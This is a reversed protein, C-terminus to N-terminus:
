EAAGDTLEQEILAAQKELEAIELRVIRSRPTGYTAGGDAFLERASLFPKENPTFYGPTLWAGLPQSSLISSTFAIGELKSLEGLLRSTKRELESLEAKNAAAQRRLELAEARRRALIALARRRSLAELAANIGDVRLRLEAVERLPTEDGDLYADGANAESKELRTGVTALMASLQAERSDLQALLEDAQSVTLIDLKM